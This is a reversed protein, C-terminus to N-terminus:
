NRRLPSNTFGQPFPYRLGLGGAGILAIMSGIYSASSEYGVDIPWARGGGRM